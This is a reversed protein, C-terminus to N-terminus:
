PTVPTSRSGRRRPCLGADLKEGSFGQAARQRWESAMHQTTAMPGSFMWDAGGSAALQINIKGLVSLLYRLRMLIAVGIKGILHGKKGALLNHNEQFYFM